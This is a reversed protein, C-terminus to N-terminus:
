FNPLGTMIEEGISSVISTPGVSPQSMGGIQSPLKPNGMFYVIGYSIVGVMLMNKLYTAKSKRNDLLKTDLYMFVFCVLSSVISVFFASNM